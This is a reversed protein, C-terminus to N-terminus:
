LLVCIMMPSWGSLLAMFAQARQPWHLTTQGLPKSMAWTQAAARRLMTEVSLIGSAGCSNASSSM